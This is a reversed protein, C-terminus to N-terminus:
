NTHLFATLCLDFLGVQNPYEFTISPPTFSMQLISAIILNFAMCGIPHM